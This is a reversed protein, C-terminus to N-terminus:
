ATRKWMYCTIYPQLNANTTNGNTGAYDTSVYSTSDSLSSTLGFWRTISTGSAAKSSEYKLAKHNHYPIIADKAGGTKEVTKFNNASDNEDVGVPVRGNGWRTWTGGFLLGPDVNNVSM